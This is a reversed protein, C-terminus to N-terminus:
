MIKIMEKCVNSWFGATPQSTLKSFEDETYVYMHVELSPFLKLIDFFEEARELFQKDTNKIIMIDIDSDSSFDGRAVSGFLYVATCRGSLVSRLKITIEEPSMGDLPERLDWIILSGKNSIRDSQNM